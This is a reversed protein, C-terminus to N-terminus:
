NVGLLPLALMSHRYNKEHYQPISYHFLKYQIAAIDEM